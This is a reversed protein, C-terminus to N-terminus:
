KISYAKSPFTFYYNIIGASRILSLVTDVSTVKIAQTAFSLFSGLGNCRSEWSIDAYFEMKVCVSCINEGYFTYSIGTYCPTGQVISMIIVLNVQQRFVGFNRVIPLTIYVLYEM